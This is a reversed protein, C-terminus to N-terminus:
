RCGRRPPAPIPPGPPPRLPATESRFAQCYTNKFIYERGGWERHDAGHTGASREMGEERDGVRNDTISYVRLSESWEGVEELFGDWIEGFERLIGEEYDELEKIIGLGLDVACGAFSVLVWFLMAACISKRVM